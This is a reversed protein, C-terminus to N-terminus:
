PNLIQSIPIKNYISFIYLIWTGQHLIMIKFSCKVGIQRNKIFSILTVIDHYYRGFM